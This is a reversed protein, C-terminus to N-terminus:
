RPGGTRHAHRLVMVVAIGALTVMAIVAAAPIALGLLRFIDAAIV